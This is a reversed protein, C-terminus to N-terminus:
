IKTYVDTYCKSAMILIFNRQYLFNSQNVFLKAIKHPYFYKVITLRHFHVLSNINQKVKFSSMTFLYPNKRM